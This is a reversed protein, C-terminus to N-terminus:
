WSHWDSLVTTKMLKRDWQFLFCEKTPIEKIPTSKHLLLYWCLCRTAALQRCWHTEYLGGSSSHMAGWGRPQYGHYGVSFLSRQTLKENIKKVRRWRWWRCRPSMKMTYSKCQTDTHVHKLLLTPPDPPDTQHGWCHGEYGLWLVCLYEKVQGEYRM